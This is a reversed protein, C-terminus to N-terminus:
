PNVKSIRTSWNGLATRTDGCRFNSALWQSYTCSAEIYESALWISNGDAAAAGYDGWRPRFPPGFAKYETFGDQSDNGARAVQIAGTGNQTLTVYAASPFWDPGVLTFGIIGKGTSTMALAPYALSNGGTAAVVGQAALSGSLVGARSFSPTVAYWAIGARSPSTVGTDLAGWVKGGAYSVQQMRTDNTDIPGLVENHAPQAQPAFFFRWCGTGLGQIVLKTDNVCDRLPADGAKQQAPDPVAYEDVAVTAKHLVPLPTGNLSSTNTLAWLFIQSSRGNDAFVADSSLFYETGGAGTAYSNTGPSQAPWVTFANQANGDIFTVFSNVTGAGAALQAKSFSYIDVGNYGNAFFPFENITVYFGNADAGVHPYDPFCPGGACNHNPTGDTGDNQAAIRYINWSGIPSSTASVAIDITSKGTFSGASDVALTSAVQFWRQTAPDYYCTPDFVDPGVVGTTRNFAFPYGYFANLATMNLLAGGSSYVAIASNVSEFVYGNGACMGQDPPETSFQNGEAVAFRQDFHNLGEWSTGLNSPASAVPSGAVAPGGASPRTTEELRKNIGYHSGARSTDTDSDAEPRIETSIAGAKLTTHGVLQVQLRSGSASTAGVPVVGLTAAVLALFTATSLVRKLRM